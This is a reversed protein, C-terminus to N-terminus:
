PGTPNSVLLIIGTTKPTGNFARRCDSTVPANYVSPYFSSNDPLPLTSHKPPWISLTVRNSYLSIAAYDLAEIKKTRDARGGRLVM